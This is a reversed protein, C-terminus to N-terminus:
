NRFPRNVIHHNRMPMAVMRAIQREPPLLRSVAADDAANRENALIKREPVVEVVLIRLYALM